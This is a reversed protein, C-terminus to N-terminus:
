GPPDPRLFVHAVSPDRFGFNKCFCVKKPLFFVMWKKKASFFTQFFTQNSFFKTAFDFGLAVFRRRAGRPPTLWPIEGRRHMGLCAAVLFTALLPASFRRSRASPRNYARAFLAFVGGRVRSGFGSITRRRSPAEKCRTMQIHTDPHRRLPPPAPASRPAAGRAQRAKRAKKGRQSFRFFPSHPTGPAHGGAM